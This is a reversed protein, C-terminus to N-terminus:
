GAIKMIADVLRLGFPSHSAISLIDSVGVFSGAAYVRRLMLCDVGIM